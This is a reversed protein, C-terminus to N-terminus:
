MWLLDANESVSHITEKNREVLIGLIEVNGIEPERNVPEKETTFVM